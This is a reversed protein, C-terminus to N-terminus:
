TLLVWIYRSAEDVALLYLSYGDWLAVVRDTVKNPQQYDLSSAQMFGFDMYFQRHLDTTRKASKSAAQKQVWAEEKWDLFWFLHYHFSLPIGTVNGSMLDLQDEGPFGFCLM